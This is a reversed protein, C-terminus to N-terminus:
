NAIVKASFKGEDAYSEFDITDTATTIARSIANKKNFAKPVHVVVSAKKVWFVEVSYNKKVRKM